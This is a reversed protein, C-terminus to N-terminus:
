GVNIVDLIARVTRGLVEVNYPKQILPADSAEIRKDRMVETSYGTMFIVRVDEKLARM